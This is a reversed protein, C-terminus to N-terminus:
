PLGINTLMHLDFKINHGLYVELSSALKHWYSIVAKALEPQRQIDVAFTYGINETPHLFGFQFLFPKDKVIHLGTTETDFAGVKPQIKNFLAIMDNAQKNTKITTKYWKCKLM